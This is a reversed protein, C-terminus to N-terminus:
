RGGFEKPVNSGRGSLEYHFGDSSAPLETVPAYMEHATHTYVPPSKYDPTYVEPAKLDQETHQVLMQNQANQARRRRWYFFAALALIVVCGLAVAIGIAAKVGTSLGESSKSATAAASTSSSASEPNTNASSNPSATGIASAGTAYQSATSGTSSGTTTTGTTTTGTTTTGATAAETTSTSTSTTSTSSTPQELGVTIPTPRASPDVAFQPSNRGKGGNNDPKLDFWCPSGGVWDIQMLKSANYPLSTTKEETIISATVDSANSCFVWMQPSPFGSTYTVNVIDMYHLTLGETPYLFEVGYTNEAAVHGIFGRICTLAFLCQRLRIM